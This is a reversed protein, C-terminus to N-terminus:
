NMSGINFTEHIRHGKQMSIIARRIHGENGGVGIYIDSRKCNPHNKIFEYVSDQMPRHHVESRTKSILISPEIIKKNQRVVM